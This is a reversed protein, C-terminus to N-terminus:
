LITGKVRDTTNGVEFNLNNGKKDISSGGAGGAYTSNGGPAGPAGGAPGNWGVSYYGGAGGVDLGGATPYVVGYTSVQYMAGRMGGPLGAGGGGGSYLTNPWYIFGGGGGGGFIYGNRNDLTAPYDLLLATSGPLGLNPYGGAGGAGRIYSENTIRLTSGTPFVGTRLSYGAGGGSITARNIFIYNRAKTPRGMLEFISAGAREVTNIFVITRRWVTRWGDPTKVFLESGGRWGDPLKVQPLIGPRYGGVLKVHFNMM